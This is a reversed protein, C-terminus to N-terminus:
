PRGGELFEIDRAPGRLRGRAKQWGTVEFTFPEAFWAWGNDFRDIFDTVARPTRAALWRRRGVQVYIWDSFVEAPRGCAETVALAVPCEHCDEVKGCSIHARTVTFTVPLRPRM